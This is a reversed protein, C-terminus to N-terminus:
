AFTQNSFLAQDTQSKLLIQSFALEEENLLALMDTANRSNLIRVWDILESTSVKKETNPDETMTKRLAYFRALATEQVQDDLKPFNAEIIAQMRNPKPFHIYHFLCRRLFAPPLEKEDNSTILIIPPEKAEVKEKTEDVQFWLEDLELLLDNPFDIDAKDIEDILLISPQGEKSAKYAEGLKGFEIYKNLNDSDMDQKAVEKDELLAKKLQHADLQSDRLRKIYDFTYLGDKAKSTSKVRWEFYHELYATDYLEYAVAEALKTKGCGPEGKILLPRKLQIALQVSEILRVSPFYPRISQMRGNTDKFDVQKELKQGTYQQALEIRGAM